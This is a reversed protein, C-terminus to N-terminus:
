QLAEREANFLDIDFNEVYRKLCEQMDQGICSVNGDEFYCLAKLTEQPNYVDGYLFQAAALMEELTLDTISLIAHIDLYDKAEARRQITAAKTGAIDLIDAIKLQNDRAQQPSHILKLKPVSFFSFQVPRKSPTILTLSHPMNQIIQANDLFPLSLIEDHDLSQFTFFDFDISERHGLQLALATGGYLVFHDPIDKLLPWLKKQEPPLIDLKPIM